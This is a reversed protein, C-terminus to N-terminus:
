VEPLRTLAPRPPHTSANSLLPDTSRYLPLILAHGYDAKRSRVCRTSYSSPPGMTSPTGLAPTSSTPPPSWPSGNSSEFPDSQGQNPSSSGSPTYPLQPVSPDGTKEEPSASSRGSLDDKGKGEVKGEGKDKGEEKDRDTRVRNCMVWVLGVILIVGIVGGVTVGIILSTDPGKNGSGPSTSATSTPVNGVTSEHLNSSLSANVLNFTDATVVDFYAWGPVATVPNIARPYRDESTLGQKFILSLLLPPCM